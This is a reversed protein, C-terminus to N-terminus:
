YLCFLNLLYSCFVFLLLFLLMSFLNYLFVCLGTSAAKSTLVSISYEQIQLENREYETNTFLSSLSLGLDDEAMKSFLILILLTSRRKITNTYQTQQKQGNM